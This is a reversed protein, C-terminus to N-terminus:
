GSGSRWGYPHPEGDPLVGAVHVSLDDRKEHDRLYSVMHAADPDEEGAQAPM